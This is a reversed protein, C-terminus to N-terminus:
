NIKEDLSEFPSKSAAVSDIKKEQHIASYMSQSSETRNTCMETYIGETSMDKEDVIAYLPIDTSNDQETEVSKHIKDMAQISAAQLLLMM